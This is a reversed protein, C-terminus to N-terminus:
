DDSSAPYEAQKGRAMERLRIVWICLEYLICMPVAMVIQSVPDPPTLIMALFFIIVIAIRRRSRLAESPIIGMWGLVLLLLPLQFALGFAIITKIVIDIHEEMRVIEVKVGVWVNIQQLVRLAIELTAAYAMFVGGAFLLTSAFLSFLIISREGRKLGPFVFRFIFFLLFPLSLATGGWLMIKLIIGIGSAWGLGQVMEQNAGAPALLWRMIRPAFPLIAIECVVWALACNVLCTRLDLLHELFPRPPDNYEDAGSKGGFKFRGVKM